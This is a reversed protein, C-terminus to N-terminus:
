FNHPVFFFPYLHSQLILFIVITAKKEKELNFDFAFMASLKQYNPKLKVASRLQQRLHKKVKFIM